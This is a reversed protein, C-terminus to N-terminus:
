KLPDYPLCFSAGLMVFASVTLNSSRNWSIVNVDVDRAKFAHAPKKGKRADWIAVTGDVSCSAFTDPEVPSWQMLNFIFNSFLFLTVFIELSKCAQGGFM